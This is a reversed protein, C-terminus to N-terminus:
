VKSLILVSTKMAMALAKSKMSGSFSEMVTTSVAMFRKRFSVSPSGDQDSRASGFDLVCCRSLFVVGRGRRDLAKLHSEDVAILREPEALRQLLVDLSTASLHQHVLGKGAGQLLFRKPKRSGM